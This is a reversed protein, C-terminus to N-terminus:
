SLPLRWTWTTTVTSTDSVSRRPAPSSALNVPAAFAGNGDNFMLSVDNGNAVVLDPFTDNNLDGVTVSHPADDTDFETVLFDNGVPTTQGWGAQQVARVTFTAAGLGAFEYMGTEDVGTTFPNDSMTTTSM